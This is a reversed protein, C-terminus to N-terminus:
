CNVRSQTDIRYRRRSGIRREDESWMEVDREGGKKKESRGEKEQSSKKRGHKRVGLRILMAYEPRPFNGVIIECLVFPKFVGSFLLLVNYSDFLFVVFQIGVPSM